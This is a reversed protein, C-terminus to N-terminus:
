AVTKHYVEELPVGKGAEIEARAEFLSALYEPDSFERMAEQMELYREVDMLVAVPKGNQTVVLDHGQAKISALLETLSRRLEHVGVFPNKLLDLM